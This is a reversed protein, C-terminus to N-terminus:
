NLICVMWNGMKAWKHKMGDDIDWRRTHLITHVWDFTFLEITSVFVRGLFLWNIHYNFLGAVLVQQCFAMITHKVMLFIFCSLLIGIALLGLFGAGRVNTYKGKSISCGVLYYFMVTSVKLFFTFRISAVELLFTVGSFTSSVLCVSFRVTYVTLFHWYPEKRINGKPFYSVM